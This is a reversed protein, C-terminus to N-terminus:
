GERQAEEFLSQVHEVEIGSKIRYSRAPNAYVRRHVSPHQLNGEYTHAQFPQTGERYKLRALEDLTNFRIPTVDKIIRHHMDRPHNMGLTTKSCAMYADLVRLYYWLDPCHFLGGYVVSNGWRNRVDPPVVFAGKRYLHAYMKGEAIGFTIFELPLNMAKYVQPNQLRNTLFVLSELSEYSM